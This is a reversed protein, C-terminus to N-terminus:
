QATMEKLHALRNHYSIHMEAPIPKPIATAIKSKTHVVALTELTTRTELRDSAIQPGCSRDYMSFWTYLTWDGFIIVRVIDPDTNKPDDICTSLSIRSSVPIFTETSSFTSMFM